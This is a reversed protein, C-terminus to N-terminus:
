FEEFETRAIIDNQLQESLETFYASYTAVRVLLDGYKEPHKQADKLVSADVINFQVHFGGAQCYSRLLAVFKKLKDGGKLAAPSFRMNLVSGAVINNHNLKSVSKLTAISGKINRGQHPSIGGEALPEHAKRGEPLAGIVMGMGLHSTGTAASLGLPAGECDRHKSLEGACLAAVDDVIKDVYDDDNGFKPANCLMQLIEDEGEFNKDLVDILKEMTIVKDDFVLKKIAALSDGINPLGSVGHGERTYKPLGKTIDKGKEPFGDFLASQFPQPCYKGYTSRFASHTAIGRPFAYEVQTKFAQWVDEYSTFERPDGTAPGIQKGTLRSVGNNLAIELMLPLNVMTGTVDFSCSPISPTFCGTLIYDNADEIARGQSVLQAIATDDSVFKFKGRLRKSAECALMLFEDPNKRSVRIVFEECQLGYDREAELFLYSLDNVADEGERTVGGITINVMTPFGALNEAQESSMLIAVDNVKIFFLALMERVEDKTIKGADIDAKYYPYLFQDMEGFAIGLAVAEVRLAVHIFWASQLAEQFGRASYAPVRSCVDAIKLLEAKRKPDAEQEALEKALVSYRGAYAIVADFAIIAARLYLLKNESGVDSVECKAIEKEIEEKMGLLGVALVKAYNAATHATHQATIGLSMYLMNEHVAYADKPVTELWKEYPNKGQWYPLFERMEAKEAETVPQCKDWSRTDLEDMDRLYWEWQLEPLLPAGRDKSTSRGVIIEGDDIVVTMERLIKDMAKARRIIINEGETSKYSETMLRGRETCLAPAVVVKERLKMIRSDTSM